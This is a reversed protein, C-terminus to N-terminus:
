PRRVVYEDPSIEVFNAILLLPRVGCPLGKEVRRLSDASVHVEKAFPRIGIGRRARVEHVKMGYTTRDFYPYKKRKKM